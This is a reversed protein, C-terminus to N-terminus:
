THLTVTLLVSFSLYLTGEIKCGKIKLGGQNYSWMNQDRLEIKHM